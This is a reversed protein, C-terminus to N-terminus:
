TEICVGGPNQEYTRLVTYLTDREAPVRGTALISELLEKRSVSQGTGAGAAHTIKEEVVTGDLDDVGFFLSLQALKLGIMIWYAKIHPFNELMLRSIALM